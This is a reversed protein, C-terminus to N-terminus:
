RKRRATEANYIGILSLKGNLRAVDVASKVRPSKTQIFTLPGIRGAAVVNAPNIGVVHSVEKKCGPCFMEERWAQEIRAGCFPCFRIRGLAVGALLGLCAAVRSTLPLIGNQRAVVAVRNVNSQCSM